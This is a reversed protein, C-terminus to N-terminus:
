RKISPRPFIDPLSGIPPHDSTAHSPVPNSIEYWRSHHTTSIVAKHSGVEIMHHMKTEAAVYRVRLRFGKRYKGLGEYLQGHHLVKLSSIPLKAHKWHLQVSTRPLGPSAREIVSTLVSSILPYLDFEPVCLHVSRMYPLSSNKQLTFTIGKKILQWSWSTYHKFSSLICTVLLSIAFNSWDALPFM